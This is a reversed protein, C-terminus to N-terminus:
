PGLIKSLHLRINVCLDALCLRTLHTCIDSSNWDNEANCSLLLPQNWPHDSGIPHTVQWPIYKIAFGNDEVCTKVLSDPVRKGLEKLVEALLKGIGETPAAVKGGAFDNDDESPLEPEQPRRSARAKAAFPRALRPTPALRLLRTLAGPAMALVPRLRPAKPPFRLLPKTPNQLQLTATANTVEDSARHCHAAQGNPNMRGNSFLVGETAFSDDNQSKGTVSPIFFDFHM